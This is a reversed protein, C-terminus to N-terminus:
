ADTKTITVTATSKAMRWSVDNPGDVEIDVDHDGEELGSLEIFLRFDSPDISDIKDTPGYVLLTTSGNAPDKFVAKQDPSLGRINVPISSIRKEEEDKRVKVNVKVLEPSVKKIGESIIVPVTVTGSEKIKSLDVEARVAKTAALVDEDATIVADKVDLEISELVLGDPLSGKQVINIPVQKTMSKLPITVEVSDPEVIVSLKNLEKDFVRIKADRTTTQELPRKLDVTAKVYTISDIIDRAGTIKVKDPSVKPPSAAFGEKVMSTNYEPEVSFEKTIREQVSITVTSPSLVADLKDSLERVKLKVSQNGVQAGELDVYVEFNRLTKANQVHSKPGTIKMNVTEPIGTVILNKTDYYANVPVDKITETTEDGPVYIENLKKGETPVSSYLLIALLLAVIKVFWGNDLMKDM